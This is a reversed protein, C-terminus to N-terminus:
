SPPAFKTGCRSCYTPATFPVVSRNFTGCNPCTRTGFFWRRFALAALAIATLLGLFWFLLNAIGLPNLAQWGSEGPSGHLSFRIIARHGPSAVPVTGLTAPTNRWQTSVCDLAAIDLDDYGSSKLLKVNAVTGDAMVDYSVMVDGTENRRRALDPYFGDCNHTRGVARSPAVSAAPAGQTEARAANSALAAPAAMAAVFAILAITRTM